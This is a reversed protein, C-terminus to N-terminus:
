LGRQRSTSAQGCGIWGMMHLYCLSTLMTRHTWSRTDDWIVFLSQNSWQDGSRVCQARKFWSECHSGYWFIRRWSSHCSVLTRVVTRQMRWRAPRMFALKVRLLQTQKTETGAIQGTQYSCTRELNQAGLESARVCQWRCRQAQAWGGVRQRKAQKPENSLFRLAPHSSEPSPNGEHREGGAQLTGIKAEKYM